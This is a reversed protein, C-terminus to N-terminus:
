SQVTGEALHVPTIHLHGQQCYGVDIGVQYVDSLVEPLCVDEPVGSCRVKGQHLLVLQDSYRAALSLDHLVAITVANQTRTYDKALELVQIQHRLDLASTPEDLLLVEPKSILTQALSVLQQQGGSLTHFRRTALASLGLETLITEAQYEQESTIRLGLEHVLGLLVVEIVTLQSASSALQCLYSFRHKKVDAQGQIAQIQGAYPYQGMMAKLLTTKGTGNPGLLTTLEGCHFTANIGSLIERGGLTLDLQQVSIGKM